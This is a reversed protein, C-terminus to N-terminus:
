QPQVEEVSGILFDPGVGDVPIAMVFAFFYVQNYMDADTGATQLRTQLM